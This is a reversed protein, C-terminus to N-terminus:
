AQKESDVQLDGIHKDLIQKKQKLKKAENYIEEELKIQELREVNGDDASSLTSKCKDNCAQVIILAKEMERLEFEAKQNLKDLKDGREQLLYREQASQVKLYTLDLPNEGNPNDGLAAVINEYRIQLQQIRTKREVVNQRLESVDSLIVKKEMNLREKQVNIEAQREQMAQM